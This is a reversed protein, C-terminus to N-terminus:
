GVSFAPVEKDEEDLRGKSDVALVVRRDGSHVNSDRPSRHTASGSASYIGMMDNMTKFHKMTM